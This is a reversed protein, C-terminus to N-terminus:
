TQMSPSSKLDRHPYVRAGFSKAFNRPITRLVLGMTLPSREVIVCVVRKDAATLTSGKHHVCCPWRQLGAQFFGYQGYIKLLLIDDFYSKVWPIQEM